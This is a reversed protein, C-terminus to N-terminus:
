TRPWGAIWGRRPGEMAVYRSGESVDRFANGFQCSASSGVVSCLTPAPTLCIMSKAPLVGSTM